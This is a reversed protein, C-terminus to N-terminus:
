RAISRFTNQIADAAVIDSGRLAHSYISATVAASAHGLRASVAPLPLGSALLLSAHLHRLDHIRMKSATAASQHTRFARTAIYHPPTSGDPRTVIRGTDAWAAGQALRQELQVTRWAKLVDIAFTPLQVVRTGAHTKPEGEVYQGRITVVNRRIELAGTARDVDEWRAALAEGLRCGTALLTVFLPSEWTSGDLTALFRTAEDQSWVTIPPRSARPPEVADLPNTAVLGWQRAVVLARHLVRFVNLLTKGSARNSTHWDAFQRAVTPATLRQLRVDGFAPRLFLRIVYDYDLRTKPRLDPGAVELWADLHQAVTTKSPPVLDGTQHRRRLDAIGRRAEAQTTARVWYRRGQLRVAGEWKGDARQRISGENNGRRLM